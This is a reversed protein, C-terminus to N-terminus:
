VLQAISSRHIVISTSRILSLRVKQKENHEILQQVVQTEMTEFTSGVDEGKKDSRRIFFFPDKKKDNNFPSRM